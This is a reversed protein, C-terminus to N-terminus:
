FLGCVKEPNRKSKLQKISVLYWRNLKLQKTTFRMPKGSIITSVELRHNIAEVTPVGDEDKKGTCFHLVQGSFSKVKM